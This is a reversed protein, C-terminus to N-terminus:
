PAYPHSYSPMHGQVLASCLFLIYALTPRLFAWPCLSFMLYSARLPALNNAAHGTQGTPHPAQGLQANPCGSMRQPITLGAPHNAVRAATRFPTPHLIAM